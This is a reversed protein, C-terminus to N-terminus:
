INTRTTWLTTRTTKPGLQGTGFTNGGV